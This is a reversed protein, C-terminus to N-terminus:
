AAKKCLEVQEYFVEAPTRGGLCKMPRNNHFSEVEKLQKQTIYRFDTGKPFYRRLFGNANEISGRQWSAYPDCFYVEIKLRKEMHKHRANEGGNDLTLSLRLEEPIDELRYVAASSFSIATCDMLKELKLYRSKREVMSCVCPKSSRSVVTDGEWDGFRARANIVESREHISRKDPNKLAKAKRKGGRTGRKGKRVLYKKLEPQEAYIWNYIAQASITETKGEQKLRISILEPSWKEKIKEYVYNELEASKLIRRKRSQSRIGKRREFSYKAKTWCDWEYFFTPKPRKFERSIASPSRKLKKATAQIGLGQEQMIYIRQLEPLTLKPSM